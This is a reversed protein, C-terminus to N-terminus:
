WEIKKGCHPCYKVAKRGLTGSCSPCRGFVLWFILTAIGFGLGVCGFARNEMAACLLIFLAMLVCGVLLLYKATKLEM